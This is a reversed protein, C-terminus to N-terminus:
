KIKEGANVAMQDHFNVRLRLLGDVDEGVNGTVVSIDPRKIQGEILLAEFNIKKSKRYRVGKNRQEAMANVTTFLLLFIGWFRIM